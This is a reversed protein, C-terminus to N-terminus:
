HLARISAFWGLFKSYVDRPAFEPATLQLEWLNNALSTFAQESTSGVPQLTVRTVAASIKVRYKFNEGASPFFPVQENWLVNPSAQSFLNAAFVIFLVLLYM